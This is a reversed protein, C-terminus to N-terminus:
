FINESKAWSPFWRYYDPPNTKRLGQYTAKVLRIKDGNRYLRVLGQEALSILVRDLEEDEVEFVEKLDERSMYLGPNVKYDEALVRLLRDEDVQSQKEPKHATPIPVGLEQHTVRRPMRLDKAMERLGIRYIVKRIAENTGGAIQGIKSDRVLREVPYFKTVGDGGMVQTAELSTAMAMDTNFVKCLSSEVAAEQGLDLLHAAYYTAMRALKLSIIMDAIKFQNTLIDITPRGFQIRRQTYPVVAKIVESLATLSQASVIVREYNLGSTMVQLGGGEEGVRNSVPVPVEDLNLYGNPMNDIGILENLKEVTFGPMGREVIFGSLHRRRRIDEPEDSTRAYLMYISAIGAGTVFRKKGTLIYRDGDYRATTELSLADTGVFPETIAIACVEGKAIRPLFERRQEETGCKNIHLGILMNAMLAIGVGPIRISEEVAICAGTAGLGKGGYEKPVSIGFYGLKAMDNVIDWPFERKWWAEESRPVAENVFEELETALKRHEETWWTFVEM